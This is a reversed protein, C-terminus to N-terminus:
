NKKYFKINLINSRWDSKDCIIIWNGCLLLSSKRFNFMCFSLFRCFYPCQLIDGKMMASIKFKLLNFLPSKTPWAYWLPLIYFLSHCLEKIDPHQQFRIKIDYIIDSMVWNRTVTFERTYINVRYLLWRIKNCTELIQWSNSTPVQLRRKSYIRNWYYISYLLLFKYHAKNKKFPWYFRAIKKLM